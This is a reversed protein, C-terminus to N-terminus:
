DEKKPTTNKRIAIINEAMGCIVLLFSSTAISLFFLQFGLIIGEPNPIKETLYSYGPRIQETSGMTAWITISGIIGVILIIWAVTKLVDISKQGYDMEARFRVVVVEQYLIIGSM